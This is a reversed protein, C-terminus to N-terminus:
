STGDDLRITPYKPGTKRRVCKLLIKPGFRIAIEAAASNRNQLNRCNRSIRRNELCDGTQSGESDSNQNVDPFKGGYVAATCLRRVCGGYVSCPKNRTIVQLNVTM